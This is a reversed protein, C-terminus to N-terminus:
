LVFFACWTRVQLKALYEGIQFLIVSLNLLLGKKVKTTLLGVLGYIDFTGPVFTKCVKPFISNFIQVMLRGKEIVSV